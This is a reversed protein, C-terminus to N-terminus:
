FHYLEAIPPLHNKPTIGLNGFVQKVQIQRMAGIVFGFLIVKDYALISGNFNFAFFLYLIALSNRAIIAMSGMILFSIFGYRIYLSMIGNDIQVDRIGVIGFLTENWDMSRILYFPEELRISLSEDNGDLIADYRTAVEKGFYAVLAIVAAFFLISFVSKVISPLRSWTQLIWFFLWLGIASVGSFSQSAVSVAIAVLGVFGQQSLSSKTYTCLIVTMLSMVVFSLYSPEGYFGTARFRYGNAILEELGELTGQNIVFYQTPLGIFQGQTLFAAQVIGFICIVMFLAMTYSKTKEWQGAFGEILNIVSLFVFYCALERFIVLVELYEMSGLIASAIKIIYGLFLPISSVLLSKNQVVSIGGIMLAIVAAGFSVSLYVDLGLQIFPIALFIIIGAIRFRVPVTQLDNTLQV